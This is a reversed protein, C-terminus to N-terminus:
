SRREEKAKGSVLLGIIFASPIAAIIAMVIIAPVLTWFWFDVTQLLTEM